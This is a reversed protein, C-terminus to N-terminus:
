KFPIVSTALRLTDKLANGNAGGPREWVIYAELTYYPFYKRRSDDTGGKHIPERYITGIVTTPDKPDRTPSYLVVKQPIGGSWEVNGIIGAHLRGRWLEMYNSLEQLARDAIMSNRLMTRGYVIGLMLGVSAIAIMLMGVLVEILTFGRKRTNRWRSSVERAPKESGTARLASIPTPFLM